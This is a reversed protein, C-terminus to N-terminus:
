SFRRPIETPLGADAGKRRLQVFALSNEHRLSHDVPETQPTFAPPVGNARPIEPPRHTNGTPSDLLNLMVATADIGGGSKPQGDTLRERIAM